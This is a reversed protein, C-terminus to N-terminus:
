MYMFSYTITFTASGSIRQVTMNGSASAFRLTSSGCAVDYPNTSPNGVAVSFVYTTTGDTAIVSGTVHRTITGSLLITQATGNVGTKSGRIQGGTGDDNHLIGQPTIGIGLYGNADLQMRLSWSIAGGASGSVANHWGFQGTAMSFHAAAAAGKYRWAGDYYGNDTLALTTPGTRISLIGGSSGFHTQQYNAHGNVAGAGIFVEGDNRVVFKNTLASGVNVDASGSVVTAVALGGGALNMVAGAFGTVRRKWAGDFYMNETMYIGGASNSRTAMMGGMAGINIGLWSSDWAEVNTTGFGFNGEADLYLGAQGTLFLRIPRVTGTGAAGSFLGVADSLTGVRGFEYNVGDAGLDTNYFQIM